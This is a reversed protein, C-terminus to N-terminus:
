KTERKCVSLVMMIVGIVLITMYIAPHNEAWNGNAKSIVFILLIQIIITLSM